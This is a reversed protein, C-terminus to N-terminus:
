AIFDDKEGVVPKGRWYVALAAGGLAMFVVSVASPVAVMPDAFHQQALLFGLAASQMGTEISVTRATTESFGVSKSIFYGLSFAAIHLLGVPLLLQTGQAKLVQSVQGVPSACLMTTIIVGVLPLVPTIKKVVKPFFENSLVGILTPVLVVQFTSVALGVADVPVLQGALLKTLLPTMFIAAITSATTMLVSLAVNGHAIYTAVNSAQGGPCCSVLVLGTALSPSLNLVRAITAGLVPKIIYQALFGVGITGPNRLCKKFDEFTLTLGMSLMLFGLGLTFLDSSLWTVMSPKAIGISAGLFVWVPFMTTLVDVFRKFGTKEPVPAPVSADSSAARVAITKRATHEVRAHLPKVPQVGRVLRPPQRGIRGQQAVRVAPRIGQVTAFALTTAM